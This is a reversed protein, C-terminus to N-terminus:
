QKYIALWHLNNNIYQWDISHWFHHIEIQMRDKAKGHVHYRSSPIEGTREDVYDLKLEEVTFLLSIVNNIIYICKWCIISYM